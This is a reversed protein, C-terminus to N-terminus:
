TTATGTRGLCRSRRWPEIGSAGISHPTPVDGVHVSDDMTVPELVVQRGVDPTTFHLSSIHGIPFLGLVWRIKDVTGEQPLPKCLAALM